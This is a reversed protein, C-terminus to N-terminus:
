MKVALLGLYLECHEAIESLALSQAVSRGKHYCAHARRQGGQTTELLRGM